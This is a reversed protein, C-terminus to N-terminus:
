RASAEDPGDDTSGPEAPPLAGSADTVQGDAEAIEADRAEAELQERVEIRYNTRRIRRVMDLVLLLVVVMILFTIVFGWIGPTVTNPDFEEDEALVILAPVVLM